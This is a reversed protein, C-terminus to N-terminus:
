SLKDLAEAVKELAQAMSLQACLTCADDPLKGATTRIDDAICVKDDVYACDIRNM